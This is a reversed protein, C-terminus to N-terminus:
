SRAKGGILGSYTELNFGHGQSGTVIILLAVHYTSNLAINYNEVARKKLIVTCLLKSKTTKM